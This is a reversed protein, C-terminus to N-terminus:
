LISSLLFLDLNSQIVFTTTLFIFNIEISITTVRRRLLLLGILGVTKSVTKAM